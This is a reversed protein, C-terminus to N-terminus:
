EAMDVLAAKFLKDTTEDSITELAELVPIGARLFVAIQRSFHMLETRSVKKKTIEFQLVSKKETVATPHLDRALLAGRLVSSDPASETGAIIAGDPTVATFNYKKAM